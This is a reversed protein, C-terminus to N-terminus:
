NNNFLVREKKVYIPLWVLHRTENRAGNKPAMKGERIGPDDIKRKQQMDMEKKTKAGANRLVVAVERYHYWLAMNLPTYGENDGKNM